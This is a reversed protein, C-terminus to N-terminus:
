SSDFYMTGAPVSGYPKVTQVCTTYNSNNVYLKSGFYQNSSQSYIMNGSHSMAVTTFFGNASTDIVQQWSVGYDDSAYISGYRYNSPGSRYGGDTAVMYRGCASVNGQSYSHIDGVNSFTVGYDKSIYLNDSVDGLGQIPCILVYQGNASCSIHGNLTGSSNSIAWTVGYDSSKYVNSNSTVYMISGDHSMAVYRYATIYTNASNYNVNLDWTNGYDNSLVIKNYAASLMYKGTSSIAVSDITTNSNSNTNGPRIWTKGYTNSYYISSFTQSTTRNFAVMYQGTSSIACASANMFDNYNPATVTIWTNGYDSSLKPFVTNSTGALGIFIYQGNGSCAICNSYNNNSNYISNGNGNIMWNQAFLPIDRMGEIEIQLVTEDLTIGSSTANTGVNL